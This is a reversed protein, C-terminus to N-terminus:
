TMIQRTPKSESIFDTGKDAPQGGVPVFQKSFM